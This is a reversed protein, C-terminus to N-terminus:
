AWKKCPTVDPAGSSKQGRVLNAVILAGREVGLGVKTAGSDGFVPALTNSVLMAVAYFNGEISGRYSQERNGGDRLAVGDSRRCRGFYFSRRNWM